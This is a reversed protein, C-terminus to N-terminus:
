QTVDVFDDVGVQGIMVNMGFTDTFMSMFVIVIVCCRWQLHM